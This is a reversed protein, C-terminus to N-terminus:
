GAAFPSAACTSFLAEWLDAELVGASGPVWWCEGFVKANKAHFLNDRGHRRSGGSAKGPPTAVELGCFHRCTVHFGTMFIGLRRARVQVQPLRLHQAKRHFFRM